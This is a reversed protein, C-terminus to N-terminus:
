LSKPLEGVPEGKGSHRRAGSTPTVSTSSYRYHPSPSKLHGPYEGIVLGLKSLSHRCRQKCLRVADMGAMSQRGGVHSISKWASSCRSM